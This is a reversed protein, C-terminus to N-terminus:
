RPCTGAAALLPEVPDPGQGQRGPAPEDAILRHPGVAILRALGAQDSGHM